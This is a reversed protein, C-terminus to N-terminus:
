IFIVEYEATEQMFFTADVIDDVIPDADEKKIGLMEAILSCIYRWTALVRQKKLCTTGAQRRRKEMGKLLALVMDEFKKSFRPEPKKKTFYPTAFGTVSIRVPM